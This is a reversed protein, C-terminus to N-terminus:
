ENIVMAKIVGDAYAAVTEFAKAANALSVRHTILPKIDVKGSAIMDLAPQVCQNQRRVNYVTLENRRLLDICLSIRSHAPIGTIVLKGGPRLLRTAQDIAEQQGCCEFVVPFELPEAALMRQELAPVDPSGTFCAGLAEAMRLREAIRDTVYIRRAGAERAALLTCLGIPGAGLIAVPTDPSLAISQQVSYIAISLPEAVAADEFSMTGPIRFCNHAPVVVLECMCGQLEGASSLFQIHRCTNFRGARCQDCSGCHMAPEVMVRDGPAISTVDDAVAIVEGAAEHGPIFPYVLKRAGIGGEAYNHVDSGCIGVARIRVLVEGPSAIVPAPISHSELQRIGTLQAAQMTKM